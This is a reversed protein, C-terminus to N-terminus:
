VRSLEYDNAASILSALFNAKSDEDLFGVEKGSIDGRVAEMVERIAADVKDKMTTALEDRIAQMANESAAANEANLSDSIADVRTLFSSWSPLDNPLNDDYKNL